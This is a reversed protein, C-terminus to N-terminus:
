PTTSSGTTGLCTHGFAQAFDRPGYQYFTDGPKAGIWKNTTDVAKQAAVSIGAVLGAGFWAPPTVAVAAGGVIGASCAYFTPTTLQYVGTKGLAHALQCANDCEASNPAQPNSPVQPNNPDQPFNNPGSLCDGSCTPLNSTGYPVSYFQNISGDPDTSGYGTLYGAVSTGGSADCESPSTDSDSDVEEIEAEDDSLYVCDLGRPDVYTMPNNLVYSYRNFSQPNSPDYSGAYPDPQMWRGALNSYERFQAHNTTSTGGDWFGAFGDFSNDRGGSVATTADGFPLSYRDLTVAGSANTEIRDSGVQDRTHFFAMNSFANYSEIASSGWYVKGVIPAGQFWLSAQRGALDFVTEQPSGGNFTGVVQQNLADYFFQQTNAGSVEQILNGEADYRYTNTGDSMVNGVADYAYGAIQNNAANINFQPQPGSGATVNQQLRNGYRDYAYTFNQATGSTVSRSTLRNFEDYGYNLCQNMGTDCGGTARTGQWSSTYGYLQTGGACSVAASGSCLYGGNVRGLTDYSSVATLGNGLIYSQPGNPGNQVNSVLTGPHTADIKSSTITQVENAPTYTYSTTVGGGDSSSLLNGALDYQYALNRDNASHGCGSPLCESLGTVRGLGDYSRAQQATSTGSPTIFVMARSLRGVVNTQPFNGFVGTVDYQYIKQPTGDSYNVTIPRGLLDYQTTTTTLINPNTQNASPRQRTVVLGTSNYAYSYATTGSEPETVSTTRGLFDTQFTRTQAGQTVTATSLSPGYTTTFGTGAIDTGCNTPAGSNPMSSNSSIECVISTRGLGDVQSIRTVGSEDTSQTARGLYTNSRIEGNQRQLTKLRGLVDYSYADGAGSCVKGAGFGPGQYGYSIFSANGNGDYCTDQQYFHNTSQGNSTATRSVRGYADYQAQVESFATTSQYTKQDVLTSSYSTTVKGLLISGSDLSDVETPRLLADYSPWTTKAGNPDTTSLILGTNASDFTASSPQSVGSAPTPPTAGIIYTFTSDYSYTTTGNPGTSSLLAGTDEYTNHTVYSVGPSAFQTVSTLNGRPGSVAVHQPVGSSATPPTEDYGYGTSSGGNFVDDEALLGSPFYTWVESRLVPGRTSAGGFDYTDSETPRGFGNYSATTGHMQLGDLVEYTDIQSFPVAFATTVCPAATGNYCTQRQLVPTGSAAGQYVQRQTEYYAATVGAPQNTAAVFDYALGNNLGDVVDTHSTGTGITRAYTWTSVASGAAAPVTRVLGAASGDACVIGNNAGTYSYGIQGGTPLTIGTVRGTVNPNGTNPFTLEYSFQYFSSDPLTVRDVLSTSMPGYESVGACNFATQVTYSRYTVSVSRPTGTSDTYTFTHANPATGAVRLALNGTTDTFSGGQDVTIQNGNSDQITGAGDGVTAPTITKGNATQVTASAYDSVSITYGSGDGATETFSPSSSPCSIDGDILQSTTGNFAHGTGVADYYVWGSYILTTCTPTTSTMTSYSVYGTSAETDVSWGWLNVPTWMPPGNVVSPSWVSSDYLLSYNFPIRGPKNLVPITVHVNLNGVNITDIGKSDFTGYPYTGTAVQGYGTGLCLFFAFAICLRVANSRM